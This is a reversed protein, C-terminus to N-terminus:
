ASRRWAAPRATEDDPDATPAVFDTVTFTGPKGVKFTAGNPMSTIALAKGTALDPALNSVIPTGLGSLPDYGSRASYGGVSGSTVDHFDQSYHSTGDM